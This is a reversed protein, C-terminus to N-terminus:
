TLLSLMNDLETNTIIKVKEFLEDTLEIYHTKIIDVRSMEKYIRFSYIKGDLYSIEFKLIQCSNYLSWDNCNLIKILFIHSKFGSHTDKDGYYLKGDILKFEEQREKIYEENLINKLERERKELPELITKIEKEIKNLEERADM